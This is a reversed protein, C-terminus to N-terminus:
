FPATHPRFPRPCVRARLMASHLSNMRVQLCMVLLAAIFQIHLVTAPPNRKQTAQRIRAQVRPPIEGITVFTPPIWSFGGGNRKWHVRVQFRQAVQGRLRDYPSSLHTLRAACLFVHKRVNKPRADEQVHCPYDPFGAAQRAWIVPRKM